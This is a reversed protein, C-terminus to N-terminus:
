KIGVYVTGPATLGSENYLADRQIVSVTAFISPVSFRTVELRGNRSAGLLMVLICDYDSNVSLRNNNIILCHYYFYVSGNSNEIKSGM